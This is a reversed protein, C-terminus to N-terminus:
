PVAETAPTLEMGRGKAKAEDRDEEGREEGNVGNPEGGFVVTGSVRRPPPKVPRKMCLGALLGVAAQL